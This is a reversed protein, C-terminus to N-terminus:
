TAGHSAAIRFIFERFEEVTPFGSHALPSDLSFLFEGHSHNKRADEIGVSISEVTNRTVLPPKQFEPSEMNTTEKPFYYCLLM